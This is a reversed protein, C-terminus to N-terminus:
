GQKLVVCCCCGCCSCCLQVNEAAECVIVLKEEVFWKEDRDAVTILSGWGCM